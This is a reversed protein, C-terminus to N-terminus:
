AGEVLMEQGESHVSSFKVGLHNLFLLTQFLENFCITWDFSDFKLKSFCCKFKPFLPYVSLGVYSFHWSLGSSVCYITM